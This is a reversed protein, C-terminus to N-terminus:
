TNYFPKRSHFFTKKFYSFHITWTLLLQYSHFKTDKPYPLKDFAKIKDEVSKLEAYEEDTIGPHKQGEMTAWLVEDGYVM